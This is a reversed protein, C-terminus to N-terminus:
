SGIKGDSAPWPFEALVRFGHGPTSEARLDGGFLRVRERMGGLGTSGGESSKAFAASPICGCGDDTISLQVHGQAMRLSLVAQGAQAHRAVNTLAEQAVRFVVTALDNDLAPFPEVLQVDIDLDHSEALSRGLWRLAAALGLDDLIQPRLLRSLARTDQLTSEGLVHAQQLLQAPVETGHNLADRAGDILRVLATLNQGLGDHLERALRRREEEQVRWVSRALRQFHQQGRTLTEVLEHQQRLLQTVRESLEDLKGSEPRSM